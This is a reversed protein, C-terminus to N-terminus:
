QNILSEKSFPIISKFEENSIKEFWEKFIPVWKDSFFGNLKTLEKPHIEVFPCINKIEDLTFKPFDYQYIGWKTETFNECNYWNLLVIADEDGIPKIIQFTKGQLAHYSEFGEPEFINKIETLILDDLSEEKILIKM